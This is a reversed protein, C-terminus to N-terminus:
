RKALDYYGVFYLFRNQNLIPVHLERAKQVVELYADLEAQIDARRKAIAPDQLEEQTYNPVV